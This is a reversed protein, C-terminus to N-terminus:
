SHKNDSTYVKLSAILRTPKLDQDDMAQSMDIVIFMHRM